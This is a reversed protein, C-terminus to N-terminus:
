FTIVINKSNGIEDHVIKSWDLPALKIWELAALLVCLGAALASNKEVSVCSFRSVQPVFFPSGMGVQGGREIVPIGLLSPGAIILDPVTNPDLKGIAGSFEEITAPEGSEQLTKVNRSVIATFWPNSRSPCQPDPEPVDLIHKRVLRTFRGQPPVAKRDLAKVGRIQKNAKALSQGHTEPENLYLTHKAEIYAYVADAPIEERREYRGQPLLRLTPYAHRDYIIIDDGAFQDNSAVIFGRCVGFRGPLLISLFECLVIEFENGLDFNYRAAISQILAEGRKTLHEIHKGYAM